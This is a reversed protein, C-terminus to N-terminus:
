RDFRYPATVVSCEVCILLTISAEEYYQRDQLTVNVERHDTVEGCIPCHELRTNDRM